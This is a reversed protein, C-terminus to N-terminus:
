TKSLRWRLACSMAASAGRYCRTGPLGPTPPGRVGSCAVIQATCTGILHVAVLAQALYQLWPGGWFGMVEHYQTARRRKGSADYWTGAADNSRLSRVICHCAHESIQVQSSKLGEAAYSKCKPCRHNRPRLMGQRISRTKMEIYLAALLFMTRCSLPSTPTGRSRVCLVVSLFAYAQIVTHQLCSDLKPLSFNSVVSGGTCCHRSDCHWKQGGDAGHQLM